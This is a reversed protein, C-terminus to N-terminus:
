KLYKIILLILMLIGVFVFAPMFLKIIAQWAASVPTKKFADFEQRLREIEGPEYIIAEGRKIQARIKTLTAHYDVEEAVEAPFRGLSLYVSKVLEIENKRPDFGCKKCKKYPASKWEGCKLCIAEHRSMIHAGPMM